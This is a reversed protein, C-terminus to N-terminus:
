EDYHPNDGAVEHMEKLAESLDGGNAKFESYTVGYWCYDNSLFNLSPM